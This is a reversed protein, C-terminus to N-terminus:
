RLRPARPFNEPLLARISKIGDLGLYGKLLTGKAILAWLFLSLSSKAQQNPGTKIGSDLTSMTTM